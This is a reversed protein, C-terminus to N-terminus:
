FPAPCFIKIEKGTAPHIFELQEAHLFLREGPNGYLDDGRIPMGLGDKHAAHVRLQHTRGTVPFFHVRSENGQTAILKWYTSAPKGHEYCVLQRPRDELDVRLPLNIFGKDQSLKGNLIAVYRKKITHNEFQKQLFAHAEKTKAGLMIGSTSMDLRHVILPGTANKYTEQWRSMVSDRVTKGPVSLFQAPKNVIILLEDEYLVPLNQNLDPSQLPPLPKVSLGTLMHGLIPHCKSRCAPYYQGHIRIESSPSRGWWFEAIALPTIKNQYAFQFLKPACCEGAGSPILNQQDISFIQRLNKLNGNADYFNYQDFLIDQLGASLQKRKMKLADIGQRWEEVAAEAEAVKLKYKKVLDKWEFHQRASEKDLAILRFDGPECGQAEIEIRKSKRHIKDQKHLSQMKQKELEGEQIVQSLHYLKNQYEQSNELSEIEQNLRNIKEEESKYIGGPEFTDFVPPVFGPLMTGGDLKGSFAALYGLRNKGDLGVLIGMMKGLGGDSILGFDHDPPTQCLRTQLSEAAFAALASPVGSFPNDVKDADVWALCEEPLEHFYSSPFGNM